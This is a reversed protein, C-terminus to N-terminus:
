NKPSDGYQEYHNCWNVNGGVTYTPERKEVGERANITQLSQNHGNQNPYPPVEYYNQSANRLNNTINLIKEHTKPWRYM